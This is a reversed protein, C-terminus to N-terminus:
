SKLYSLILYSGNAQGEIYLTLYKKFSEKTAVAMGCQQPKIHASYLIKRTNVNIIIINCHFFLM